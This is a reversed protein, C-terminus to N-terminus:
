KKVFNQMLGIVKMSDQYVEELLSDMAGETLGEHNANQFDEMIGIVELADEHLSANRRVTVCLGKEDIEHRLEHALRIAEKQDGDELAKAIMRLQHTVVIIM